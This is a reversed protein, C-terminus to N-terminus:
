QHSSQIARIALMKELSNNPLLGLCLLLVSGPHDLILTPFMDVCGEPIKPWHTSTTRDHHSVIFPLLFTMDSHESIRGVSAAM